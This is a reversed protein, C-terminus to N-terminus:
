KEKRQRDKKNLYEIVGDDVARIISALHIDDPKASGACIITETEAASTPQATM